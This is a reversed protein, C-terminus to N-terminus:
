SAIGLFYFNKRASYFLIKKKLKISIKLKDNLFKETRVQIIQCLRLFEYGIM